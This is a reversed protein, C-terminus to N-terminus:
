SLRARTFRELEAWDDCTKAAAAMASPVLGAPGTAYEDFVQLVAAKNAARARADTLGDTVRFDQGRPRAPAGNPALLVPTAMHQREAQSVRAEFAARAQALTAAYDPVLDRRFVTAASDGAIVLDIARCFALRWGRRECRSDVSNVLSHVATTCGFLERQVRERVVPSAFLSDFGDHGNVRFDCPLVHAAQFTGLGQNDQVQAGIIALNDRASILGRRALGEVLHLVEWLTLYRDRRHKAVDGLTLGRGDTVANAALEDIVAMADMDDDLIERTAL